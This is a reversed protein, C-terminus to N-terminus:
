VTRGHVDRALKAIRQATTLLLQRTPMGTGRVCTVIIRLGESGGSVEGSSHTFTEVPAVNSRSM